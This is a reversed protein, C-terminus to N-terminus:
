DLLALPPSAPPSPSLCPSVQLSCCLDARRECLFARKALKGDALGSRPPLVCFDASDWGIQFAVFRAYMIVDKVVAPDILSREDDGKLERCCITRERNHQDCKAATFTSNPLKTLELPRLAIRALPKWCRWRSEGLPVTDSGGPTSAGASLSWVPKSTGDAKVRPPLAVAGPAPRAASSTNSPGPPGM